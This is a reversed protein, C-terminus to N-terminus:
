ARNQPPRDLSRLPAVPVPQSVTEISAVPFPDSSVSLAQEARFQYHCPCSCAQNRSSEPRPSEARVSSGTGSVSALSSAPDQPREDPCVIPVDSMVLMLFAACAARSFSWVIRM